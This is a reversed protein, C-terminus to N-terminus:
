EYGRKSLSRRLSEKRIQEESIWSFKRVLYRIGDGYIHMAKVSNKMLLLKIHFPFIKQSDLRPGNAINQQEPLFKKYRSWERVGYHSSRARIDWELLFCCCKMYGLQRISCGQSKFLRRMNECSEKVSAAHDAPGVPVPPIDKKKHFLVANVRLRQYVTYLRCNEPM